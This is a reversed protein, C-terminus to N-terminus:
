EMKAQVADLAVSFDVNTKVNTDSTVFVRFQHTRQGKELRRHIILTEEPTTNTNGDDDVYRFLGSSGNKNKITLTYDITMDSVITEDNEIKFNDVTIMFYAENNEIYHDNTDVTAQAIINGATTTVSLINSSQYVAYSVSLLLSSAALLFLLIM